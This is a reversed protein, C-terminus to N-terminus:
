RAVFMCPKSGNHYNHITVMNHVAFYSAMYFKVSKPNAKQTAFHSLVGIRIDEKFPNSM